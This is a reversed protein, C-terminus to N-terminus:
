EEGEEAMLSNKLSSAGHVVIQSQASLTATDISTELPKFYLEGNQTHLVEVTIPTITNQQKTFVVNRGDIMTLANLKTMFAKDTFQFQLKVAQGPKLLADQNDFKAHVEISQTLPNVRDAVLSVLGTKNISVLTAELGEKVVSAHNVPIEVDVVIPNTQGIYILADNADLRQGLQVQVDFLEGSIPAVIDIEAPQLQQTKELKAVVETAMGVYLLNQKQQAKLQMLKQVSAEHLQRQKSSVAGTQSLQKARKLAFRETRLDALTALFETQLNLLEPSYVKAISEGQKVDGHFHYLATVQGSFPITIAHRQNIPVIAQAVYQQSPYRDVLIAPEAKIALASLQQENLELSPLESAMANSSYILSASMISLALGISQITKNVPPLTSYDTTNSNHM